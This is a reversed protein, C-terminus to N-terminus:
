AQPIPTTTELQTKRAELALAFMMLVSNFAGLLQSYAEDRTPLSALKKVM